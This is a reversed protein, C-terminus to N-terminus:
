LAVWCSFVMFQCIWSPNQEVAVYTAIAQAKTRTCCGGWLDQWYRQECVYWRCEFRFAHSNCQRLPWGDCGQPLHPIHGGQLVYPAQHPGTPHNSYTPQTHGMALWGNKIGGLWQLWVPQLWFKNSWSCVLPMDWCQGESRTRPTEHNAGTKGPSALWGEDWHLLLVFGTFWQWPSGESTPTM